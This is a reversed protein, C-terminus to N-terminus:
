ATPEPMDIFPLRENTVCSASCCIAAALRFILTKSARAAPGRPRGMGELIRHLQPRTRLGRGEAGSLYARRPVRGPLLHHRRSRAYRWGGRVDEPARRRVQLSRRADPETEM